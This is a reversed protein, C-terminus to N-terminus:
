RSCHAVLENYVLRAPPPPFTASPATLSLLNEKLASNARESKSLSVFFRRLNTKFM